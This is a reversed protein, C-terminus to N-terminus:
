DESFGRVIGQDVGQDIGQGIGQFDCVETRAGFSKEIVGSCIKDFYQSPNTSSPAADVFSTIMGLGVDLASPNSDASIKALFPGFENFLTLDEKGSSSSEIQTKLDEFAKSRIKWNKDVLRVAMPREDNAEIENKEELQESPLEQAMALFAEGGLSNRVRARQAPLPGSGNLNVVEEEFEPITEEFEPIRAPLPLEKEEAKEEEGRDVEVQNKEELQKSPLEQAMALADGGLSNRVRARQPPPPPVSGNLNVVEEVFDKDKSEQDEFEPITDNLDLTREMEATANLALQEMSISM